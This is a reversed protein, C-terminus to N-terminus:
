VDMHDKGNAVEDDFNNNTWVAGDTFHVQKVVVKGKTTQETNFLTWGGKITAGPAANGQMNLKGTVNGHSPDNFRNAPRGFNDFQLIVFEVADITKNSTNKFVVDVETVGSKDFKIEALQVPQESQEKQAAPVQKKNKPVYM